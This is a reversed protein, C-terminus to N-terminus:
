LTAPRQAQARELARIFETDQAALPTILLTVLLTLLHRM